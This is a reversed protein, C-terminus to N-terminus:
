VFQSLFILDFDNRICLILASERLIKDDEYFWSSLIKYSIKDQLIIRGRDGHDKYMRIYSMSLVFVDQCFSVRCKCSMVDGREM